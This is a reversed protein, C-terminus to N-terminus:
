NCTYLTGQLWKRFIKTVVSNISHSDTKIARILYGSDDDLLCVGFHEYGVGILEYLNIHYEENNTALHQLQTETPIDGLPVPFLSLYM